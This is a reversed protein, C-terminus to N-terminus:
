YPAMRSNFGTKEYVSEEDHPGYISLKDHGVDVKVLTLAGVANGTGIMGVLLQMALHVQEEAAQVLLLAAPEGGQLGALEAVAAVAADGEDEAQVDIGDAAAALFEIGVQSAAGAVADAM